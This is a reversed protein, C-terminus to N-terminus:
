KDAEIRPLTQYTEQQRIDCNFHLLFYWYFLEDQIITWFKYIWFLIRALLGFVHFHGNFHIGSSIILFISFFLKISLPMEIEETEALGEKNIHDLSM